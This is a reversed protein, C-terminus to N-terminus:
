RDLTTISQVPEIVRRARDPDNMGELAGQIMDPTIQDRRYGQQELEAFVSAVLQRPNVAVSAMGGSGVNVQVKAGGRLNPDILKALKVGQDFVQNLIKSVEPNTEGYDNEDQMGRELRRANAAVLIGLGEIITGSDRTKFFSALERPEAGPVSCVAGDRFYTCKDQLSCTDCIFRDGDKKTVVGITPLLKEPPRFDGNSSESDVENGDKRIKFSYLKDFNEAAWVASKINYMCRNRPVALEVPKFGLVTVWQPHAQAQEYKEEKGSPLHVKGKQAATRPEVDAAAYGMGFAVRFSYLGHVHIICGPYDEQLHKLYIMFKKGPGGNANPLNTIVVRHEQGFVPRLDRPVSTDDTISRDEGVPRSVIEELLNADEGYEWTPYVATPRDITDGDRYETTGQQGVLLIRWPYTKGFYLEAHKIPDTKYKALLGRDWAVNYEGCEVLERIYNHPNRFWPQTM